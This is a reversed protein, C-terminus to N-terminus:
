TTVAQTRIGNADPAHHAEDPLTGQLETLIGKINTKDLLRQAASTSGGYRGSWTL